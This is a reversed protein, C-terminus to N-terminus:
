RPEVAQLVLVVLRFANEASQKGVFGFIFIGDLLQRLEQEVFPFRLLGDGREFSDQVASRRWAQPVEVSIGVGLNVIEGIGFFGVALGLFSLGAVDVVAPTERLCKQVFLFIRLRELLILTERFHIGFIRVVIEAQGLNVALQF